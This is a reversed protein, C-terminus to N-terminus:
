PTRRVPCGWAAEFFREEVPRRVRQAHERSRYPEALTSPDGPYGIAIMAMCEYREPIQFAARLRAADFGGMQHALLGLAVAQLCLSLSAAGTDYPAWRNLADDRERLRDAAALMLLPARQAWARNGESLCAFAEQWAEPAAFRDWLVYRWPEGGYCSPAWRAAELLALWQERAVPRDPDFARASWREALLPHIPVNSAAPKRM